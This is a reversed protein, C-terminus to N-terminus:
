VRRTARGVLLLRIIPARREREVARGQVEVRREPRAIDAVHEVDPHGRSALEFSRIVVGVGLAVRAPAVAPVAMVTTVLTPRDALWFPGYPVPSDRSSTRAM